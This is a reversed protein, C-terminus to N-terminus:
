SAGPWDFVFARAAGDSAGAVTNSALDGESAGSGPADSRGIVCFANAATL